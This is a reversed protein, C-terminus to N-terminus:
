RKMQVFWFTSGDGNFLGNFESGFSDPSFGEELFEWNGGNVRDSRDTVVKMIVMSLRDKWHGAM